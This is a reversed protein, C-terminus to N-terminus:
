WSSVDVHGEFCKTVYKRAILEDEAVAEYEAVEEFLTLPKLLLIM